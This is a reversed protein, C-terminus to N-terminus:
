GVVSPRAMCQGFLSNPVSRLAPAVGACSMNMPGECVVRLAAIDQTGLERSDVGMATVNELVNCRFELVSFDPVSAPDEARRLADLFEQRSLTAVLSPETTCIRANFGSSCSAITPSLFGSVIDLPGGIILKSRRLLRMANAAEAKRRHFNQRSEDRQAARELPGRGLLATECFFCGSPLIISYTSHGLLAQAEGRVVMTLSDHAMEPDILVTGRPVWRLSRWLNRLAEVQCEGPLSSILRMKRSVLTLDSVSVWRDLEQSVQAGM